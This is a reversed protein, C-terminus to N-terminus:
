AKGSGAPWALKIQLRPGHEQRFALRAGLPEIIARALLLTRQVEARNFDLRAPFELLVEAAAGARQTGVRVAVGAAARTADCGLTAMQMLVQQLASAPARVAPLEADLESAFAIGRYRRDYHMLQLVRSVMGNVDVWDLDSAQPAALEALHRSAMSARQAQEIIRQAAEAVRPAPVSGEAAGLDQAVGAIVALPNNVEHAVGAALAGVALMKDEHSRRQGDLEIRKEREDLDAALRNLAQALRGLEDGRQLPLMPGRGGHVIRRAHAELRRIDATLRGLFWAVGAAFVALGLLALAIAEVTVADFHRRYASTLDDRQEVLALRRIDLEDAARVLAERLAARREGDRAERWRAHARDLARQVLAYGPDFEDLAALLRMAHQLAAGIEDSGGAVDNLASGLAAEALALAKEHRSLQQLAQVSDYIRGREAAVWAVAGLLYAFLALTALLGHVRLSRRMPLPAVPVASADGGEGAQLSM